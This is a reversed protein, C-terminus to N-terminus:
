NILASIVAKQNNGSNIENMFKKFNEYAGKEWIGDKLIYTRTIIIENNANTGPVFQFSGFENETLFPKPISEIKYGEPIIIKSHDIYTKGRLIKLPLKRPMYRPSNEVPLDYVNLPVLIKNGARIGFNTGKIELRETFKQDRKDNEFSFKSIELHKLKWFQKKYYNKQDKESIDKLGYMNGYIVGENRRELVGSFDGNSKLVIESNTEVLNEKISYKRTKVIQGGQPTMLLVNRNDTFDGLYNFPMTQSTCELWIDQQDKRPINLIVHNGQMSAFEPDIDRNQEGAFVVTYYSDIDQSKLLARTYNTLAKCDGYGLADVDKVTMPVWGGIGLQVSIYRTKNQVYEYIVRSKEIEDNLDKTLRSIDELTKASIEHEESLLNDYQWQGFELWNEASGQVGVLSFDNLAIRVVPFIEYFAPSLVEPISGPINQASYYLDGGDKDSKIFDELNKESVRIALNLPNNIRYTSTQVSQFYDKVPFWPNVFVTNVSVVESSYEITYPYKVPIYRLYSYRNDSFLDNSSVASVDEFDKEKYKRIVNGAADYIIARQGKINRQDDYYERAFSHDDGLSNFVTVIKKTSITFKDVSAIDIIIEENRVVSNSNVLLEPPINVISLSPEQSFYKPIFLLFCGVLLLFFRM